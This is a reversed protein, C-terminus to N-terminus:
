SWIKNRIRSWLNQFYDYAIDSILWILQSAVVIGVYVYWELKELFLKSFLIVSPHFIMNFVIFKSFLYAGKTKIVLKKNVLIEFILERLFIYTEIMAFLFIKMKDPALILGLAISSFLYATSIRFGAERIVLGIFFSAITLLFLTSMGFVSESLIIFETIALCIAAFVMKKVNVYM